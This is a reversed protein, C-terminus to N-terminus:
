SAETIWPLISTSFLVFGFTWSMMKSAVITNPFACLYLDKRLASTMFTLKQHSLNYSDYIAQHGVFLINGFVDDNDFHGFIRIGENRRVQAHFSDNSFHPEVDIVPSSKFMNFHEVITRKPKEELGKNYEGLANLKKRDLM